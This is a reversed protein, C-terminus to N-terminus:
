TKKVDTGLAIRNDFLNSDKSSADNYHLFVQFCRTGTFPERWHEIKCGRYIVLDGQSLKLEKGAMFIPWEDGGLNLSISFECEHRDTHKELEDGKHYIRMFSYTPVLKKNTEKEILKQLKLLLTDFAGDGYICFTTPNPIQIDGFFGFRNDYPSIANHHLLETLATAKIMAYECLFNCIDTSVTKKVTLFDEKM